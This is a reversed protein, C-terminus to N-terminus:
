LADLKDVFLEASHHCLDFHRLKLAELIKPFLDNFDHICEEVLLQLWCISHDFVEDLDLIGIDVRVVRIEHTAGVADHVNEVHVVVAFM